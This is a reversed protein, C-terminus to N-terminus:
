ASGVTKQMDFEYTVCCRWCFSNAGDGRPMQESPIFITNPDGSVNRSVILSGNTQAVTFKKYDFLNCLAAGLADADDETEAFVAFAYQNPVIMTTKSFGSIRNKNIPTMIIVPMGHSEENWSSYPGFCDSLKYNGDTNDTATNIRAKIATKLADAM